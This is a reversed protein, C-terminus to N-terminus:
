KNCKAILKDMRAVLRTEFGQLFKIHEQKMEKLQIDVQKRFEILKDETSETKSM